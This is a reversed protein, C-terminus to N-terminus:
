PNPIGKSINEMRAKLEKLYLLMMGRDPHTSPDDILGGPNWCPGARLIRPCLKHADCDCRTSFYDAFQDEDLGLESRETLSPAPKADDFIWLQLHTTCVSMMHEIFGMDLGVFCELSRPCEYCCEMLKM